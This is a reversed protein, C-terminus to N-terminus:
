LVSIFSDFGIGVSLVPKNHIGGLLCPYYRAERSDFCNLIVDNDTVM